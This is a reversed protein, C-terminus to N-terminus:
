LSQNNIIKLIIKQEEDSFAYIYVNKISIDANAMLWEKITNIGLYIVDEKRKKKGIFIGSSLLCFAIEEIKNNNAVILSNRYANKLLEEDSTNNFNPGVAHIIHKVGLTDSFVSEDSTTIKANGVECRINNNVPLELRKKNLEPGGRKTIVEDIGGGGLCIENAANVIAGNESRFDAVSGHIFYINTNNIKDEGIKTEKFGKKILEIVNNLWLTKNFKRKNWFTLFNRIRGIDIDLFFIDKIMHGKIVKEAIKLLLKKWISPANDLLLQANEDTVATKPFPESNGEKETPFAWWAWHSTKKGNEIETLAKPLNKEMKDILKYLRGNDINKIKVNSDLKILFYIM